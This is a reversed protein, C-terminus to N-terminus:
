WDKGSVVNSKKGKQGSVKRKTFADKKALQDLIKDITKNPVTSSSSKEQNSKNQNRENQQNNASNEKNDKNDKPSNKNEKNNPSSKPKTKNNQNKLKRIAESLNYRTEKDTPNLRLSKKYAEIAEKYKKQQMQSNGLNHYVKSKFSKRKNSSQFQKEAKKFEKLKYLVQGKESSLDIKSPLKKEALEYFKLSKIYEGDKYYKRALLLNDRWEQAGVFFVTFFVCIYLIVKM